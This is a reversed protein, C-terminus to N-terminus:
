ALPRGARDGRPHGAERLRQALAFRTAVATRSPSRSTSARRDTRSSSPARAPDARHGRGLGGRADAARRAGRGAPRLARRRRARGARRPARSEFEFVTRTYYDLGRVLTSDIEYELGAADLLARVEAFHEADEPTSGTSCARRTAGDGGAHGPPRRRVRAAPEPRPPRAGGGLARGRARAPLGEARRPLGRADGAHRPELAAARAPGRRRARHARRAAPDARRRHESRRLRAGRRRAPHVPPLPGAQPAEHRFFPGWTWLKVPQPLKHM